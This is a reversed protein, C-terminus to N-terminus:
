SPPPTLSKRELHSLYRYMPAKILKRSLPEKRLKSGDIDGNGAACEYVADILALAHLDLLAMHSRIAAMALGHDRDFFVLQGGAGAAGM